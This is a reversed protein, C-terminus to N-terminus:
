KKVYKLSVFGETGGVRGWGNKEETIAIVMGPPLVFNHGDVQMIDFKVGAGNRVNLGHEATVVAAYNVAAPSSTDAGSVHAKDGKDLGYREIVNILTETYSLSTAWGDKRILDCAEKYDTVNKLNAYRKYQLFRYYGEIGEDVSSYKRFAASITIYKGDKLQEKTQYVKFDCGCGDRWKMGFFNYCDRSLGSKGWRSEVIAQAITLSPLIRYKDYVKVAANGILNIFNMEESTM